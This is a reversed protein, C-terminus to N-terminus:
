GRGGSCGSKEGAVKARRRFAWDQSLAAWGSEDATIISVTKARHPESKEVPM